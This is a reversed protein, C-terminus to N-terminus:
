RVGTRGGASYATRTNIRFSVPQDDNAFATVTVSEGGGAEGLLIRIWADLLENAQSNWRRLKRARIFEKAEDRKSVPSVWIDSRLLLWTM